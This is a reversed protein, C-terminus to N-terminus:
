REQELYVKIIELEIPKYYRFGQVLECDQERLFDVHADTEVGEALVDLNLNKTLAIVAKVVAKNKANM